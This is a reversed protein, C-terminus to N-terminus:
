SYFTSCLCILISQILVIGIFIAAEQQPDEYASTQVRAEIQHAKAKQLQLHGFSLRLHTVQHNCCCFLLRVGFGQRPAASGQFKEKGLKRCGYLEVGAM